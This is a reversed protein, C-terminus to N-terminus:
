RLWGWSRGHKIDQVSSRSIQFERAVNSSSAGRALMARIAHVDDEALRSSHHDAGRCLGILIPM